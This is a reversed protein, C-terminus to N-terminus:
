MQRKFPFKLRKREKQNVLPHRGLIKKAAIVILPGIFKGNMVAVGKNQIEAEEPLRLM